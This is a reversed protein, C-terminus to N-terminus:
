KKEREKEKKEALLKNHAITMSRLENRLKNNDQKMRDFERCLQFYTLEGKGRRM